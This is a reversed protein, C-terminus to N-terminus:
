ECPMGKKECLWQTSISPFRCFNPCGSMITDCQEPTVIGSDLAEYAIAEAREEEERTLERGMFPQVTAIFDKKTM